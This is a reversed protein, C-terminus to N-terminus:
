KVTRARLVPNGQPRYIMENTSAWSAKWNYTFPTSRDLEVVAPCIASMTNPDVSLTSILITAVQPASKAFTVITRCPPKLAITGPVIAPCELEHSPKGIPLKVLTVAALPPTEPKFLPPQM